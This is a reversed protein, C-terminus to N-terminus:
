KVDGSAIYVLKLKEMNEAVNTVTQIESQVDRPTTFNYRMTAKTQMERIVVITLM